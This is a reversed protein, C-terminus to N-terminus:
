SAHHGVPPSCTPAAGRYLGDTSSVSPVTQGHYKFPRRNLEATILLTDGQPIQNAHIVLDIGAFAAAGKRRNLQAEISPQRGGPKRPEVLPDNIRTLDREGTQTCGAEIQAVQARVGLKALTQNAGRVGLVSTLTLTVSGDPNVTVAYAPTTSTSATLSLVSALVAAVAVVAAAALPARRRHSPRDRPRSATRALPGGHEEALETWLRNEFSSM